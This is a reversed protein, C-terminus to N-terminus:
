AHDVPNSPGCALFRTSFVCPQATPRATLRLFPARLTKRFAPSVIGEFNDPQATLSHMEVLVVDSWDASVQVEMEVGHRKLIFRREGLQKVVTDPAFQWRVTFGTAEEPHAPEFCDTVKWAGETELRHITRSLMGKEMPMSAASGDLKRQLARLPHSKSWLFPGLRQPMSACTLCPGNHAAQSALRARLAIDGYYAGTGPDVVMAVDRHWISVHLADLHGHAATSLYGLPSADLRLRWDPASLMAIGSDEFHLRNEGRTIRNPEPEVLSAEGLWYHIASVGNLGLLWGHWEAASHKASLFFPTVSANDSDGYDWLEYLGADPRVVVEFYAAHALRKSIQHFIRQGADELTRLAQWCLEWSFWHYNSAQEKNGGDESFQKLVEREWRGQLDDLSACLRNLEPWRVTATILGVLEGLLHNNASSGFSRHRWTFWIHPPLIERRLRALRNKLEANQMRCEANGMLLADIWTFQILRLGSELASTWNWGRYPPNHKVWDELWALCKDAARADGLVYAAMALRTLHTWRSLEWILKIDAGGPLARHDLTFASEQTAIDRGVLYDCHWKPPDDVKLELHGFALWRGALIADVDRRLAARLAEPADEPKPLRPCAGTSELALEPWERPRADAKQRWRKRAHLLMEDLSMARLRHWYWAAKSM